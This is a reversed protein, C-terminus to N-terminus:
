RIDIPGKWYLPLPIVGQKAPCCWKRPISFLLYCPIRSVRDLAIRRVDTFLSPKQRNVIDTAIGSAGM